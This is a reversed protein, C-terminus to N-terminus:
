LKRNPSSPCLCSLNACRSLNARIRPRANSENRVRTRFHARSRKTTAADDLARIRRAGSRRHLPPNLTLLKLCVQSDRITLATCVVKM